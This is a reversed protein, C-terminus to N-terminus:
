GNSCIYIYIPSYLLYWVYLEAVFEGPKIDDHSTNRHVLLVEIHIDLKLDDFFNM